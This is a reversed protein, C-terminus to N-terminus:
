GQEGEGDKCAPAPQWLPCSFESTKASVYKEFTVRPTAPHFCAPVDGEPKLWHCTACTKPQEGGAAALLAQGIARAQAHHLILRVNAVKLSLEGDRWPEVKFDNEDIMAWWENREMGGDKKLTM